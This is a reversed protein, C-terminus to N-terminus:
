GNLRESLAGSERFFFKSFLIFFRWDVEFDLDKNVLRSKRLTAPAAAAMGLAAQPMPRGDAELRMVMPTMPHPMIPGAFVLDNRPSASQWTTAAHSM